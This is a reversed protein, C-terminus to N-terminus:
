EEKQFGTLSVCNTHSVMVIDDLFVSKEEETFLNMKKM